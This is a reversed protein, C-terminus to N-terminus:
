QISVQRECAEVHGPPGKLSSADIAVPITM